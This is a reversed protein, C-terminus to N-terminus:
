YGNDYINLFLEGARDIIEKDVATIYKQYDNLMEIPSKKQNGKITKTYDQSSNNKGVNTNTSTGENASTSSAYEGNLIKEKNIEGQPTDSNITLGNGTNTTTTDTNSKGTGSFTEIVNTDFLPNIIQTKAYILPAKEEIIEAMFVQAKKAFYAPTEFGIERMEYHNIIKKALKEKSWIGARNIEDIQSQTLYDRLDYSSFWNIVEDGFTAVLARLEVTFKAM